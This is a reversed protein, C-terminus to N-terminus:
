SVNWVITRFLEDLKLLASRERPHLQVGFFRSWGDIDSFSIAEPRVRRNSLAKFWEWVHAWEEPCVAHLRADQRGSSRAVSALHDRLPTGDGQAVM